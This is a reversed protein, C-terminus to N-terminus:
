HNSFGAPWSLRPIPPCCLPYLVSLPKCCPSSSRRKKNEETMRKERILSRAIRVFYIYIFILFTHLTPSSVMVERIYLFVKACFYPILCTKRSFCGFFTNCVIQDFFLCDLNSNQSSCKETGSLEGYKM